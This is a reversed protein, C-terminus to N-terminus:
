RLSEIRGRADVIQTIRLGYTDDVLVVEYENFELLQLDRMLAMTEDASRDALVLVSVPPTFPSRYLVDYGRHPAGELDHRAEWLTRTAIATSVVDVVLFYVLATWALIDLVITM